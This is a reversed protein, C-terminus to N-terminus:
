NKKSLATYPRVKEIFMHGVFGKKSGIIQFIKKFSLFFIKPIQVIRSM